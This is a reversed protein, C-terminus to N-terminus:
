VVSSLFSWWWWWWLAVVVSLSLSFSFSKSSSFTFDLLVSTFFSSFDQWLNATLFFVFVYLLDSFFNSQFRKQKLLCGFCSLKKKLRCM